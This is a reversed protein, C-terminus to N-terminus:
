TRGSGGLLYGLVAHASEDLSELRRVEAQEEVLVRAVAPFFAKPHRAKVVVGPGDASSVLEVSLVDPLDLLRRAVERALDVDIRVTVPYDDLLARIQPLTGVAAVRGRAMIVVHNTLKELAELEHSSVLLCKGQAALALFLEL